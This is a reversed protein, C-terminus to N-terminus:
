MLISYALSSTYEGLFLISSCRGDNIADECATVIETRLDIPGDVNVNTLVDVEDSSRLRQLYFSHSALPECTLLGDHSQSPVMPRM